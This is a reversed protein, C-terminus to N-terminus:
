VKPMPITWDPAAPLALKMRFDLHHYFYISVTMDKHWPFPMRVASHGNPFHGTVLIIGVVELKNEIDNAM